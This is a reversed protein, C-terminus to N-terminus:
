VWAAFANTARQIGAAGLEGPLVAQALPLLAAADLAPPQLVAPGESHEPRSAAARKRAALLAGLAASWQVFLRRTLMSPSYVTATPARCEGAGGEDKPLKAGPDGRTFWRRM